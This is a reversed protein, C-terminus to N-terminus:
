AGEVIVTCPEGSDVWRVTSERVIRSDDAEIVGHSVLLDIPGKKYNDGDRRRKDPARLEILVTVPGAVPVPKQQKLMWGAEDRWARYAASLYAGNYKRFTRHVSVPFPLNIRVGAM